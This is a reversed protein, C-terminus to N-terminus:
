ESIRRLEKDFLSYFLRRYGYFDNHNYPIQEMEGLEWKVALARCSMNKTVSMYISWWIDPAATHAASRVLADYKGSRCLEKLEKYRKKSIGYDQWTYDRILKKRRTTLSDFISLQRFGGYQKCETKKGVCNKRDCCTNLCARCLCSISRCRRM